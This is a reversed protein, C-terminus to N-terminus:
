NKWGEGDNHGELAAIKEHACKLSDTLILLSNSLSAIADSLIKIQEFAAKENELMQQIMVEPIM